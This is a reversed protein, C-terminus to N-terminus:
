KVEPGSGAVVDPDSREKSNSSQEGLTIIGDLIDTQSYTVNVTCSVAVRYVMVM